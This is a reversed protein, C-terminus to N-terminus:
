AIKRVLKSLYPVIGAMGYIETYDGNEVKVFFSDYDQAISNKGLHEKLAEVDQSDSIFTLDHRTNLNAVTTLTNEM